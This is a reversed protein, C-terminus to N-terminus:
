EKVERVVEDEQRKAEARDYGRKLQSNGPHEACDFADSVRGLSPRRIRIISSAMNEVLKNEREQAGMAELVNGIEESTHGWERRGYQKGTAEAFM